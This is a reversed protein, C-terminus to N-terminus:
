KAAEKAQEFLSQYHAEALMKRQLSHRHTLDYGQLWQSAKEPGLETYLSDVTRIEGGFSVLRELPKATM